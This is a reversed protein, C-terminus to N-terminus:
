KNDKVTLKSPKHFGPKKKKRRSETSTDVHEIAPTLNEAPTYFNIPFAKVERVMSHIFQARTMDRRSVRLPRRHQRLYAVIRDEFTLNLNDGSKGTGVLSFWLQDFKVELGPFNDGDGNGFIGSRLIARNHDNVVLSITSAGDMTREIEGDVISGAVDIDYKSSGIVDLM